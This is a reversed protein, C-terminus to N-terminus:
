PSDQAVTIKPIVERALFEAFMDARLRNGAPSFHIYDLSFYQPDRPYSAAMDAYPANLEHAVAASQQNFLQYVRAVEAPTFPYLNKYIEHFLPPNAAPSVTLDARALTIFSSLVIVSGHAQAEAGIERLVERYHTASNKPLNDDFTHAMPSQRENLGLHDTLLQFLASRHYLAGYWGPYPKLWCDGLCDRAPSGIFESWQINNAAEYFLIIDPKLPLVKQRLLELLDDINQAHHGANIVEIQRDPFRRNLAQQLFHPYTTEDDAMGETTSAGLCVIRWVGSRKAVSFESGRFGWSNSSWYIKEGERAPELRSGHLAMRLNPKFLYRPQPGNADFLELPIPWERFSKARQEYFRRNWVKLNDRASFPIKRLPWSWREYLGVRRAYLEGTLLGAGLVVMWVVLLALVRTRRSLRVQATKKDPMLTENM